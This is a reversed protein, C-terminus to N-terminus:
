TVVTYLLLIFLIYYSSKLFLVNKKKLISIM